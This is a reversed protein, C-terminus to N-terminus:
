KLIERAKTNNACISYIITNGNLECFSDDLKYVEDPTYTTYTEKQYEIRKEVKSKIEAAADASSAVFIGFEDPMAGSGCVYLVHESVMDATIGLTYEAFEMDKSVMEPFTVADLLEAAKESPKKAAPASSQTDSKSDNSTSNGCASFVACIVATMVISIIKKM